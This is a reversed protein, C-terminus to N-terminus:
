RKFVRRRALVGLGVLGSGLLLLTTPEPVPTKPKGEVIISDIDIIENGSDTEFQIEILSTGPLLSFTVPTFVNNFGNLPGSSSNPGKYTALEGLNSNIILKDDKEFVEGFNPTRISVVLQVDTFDSLNYKSLDITIKPKQKGLQDDKSFRSRWYGDPGPNKVDWDYDSGSSPAYNFSVGEAFSSDSFDETFIPTAQASVSSLLIATAALVLLARSNM